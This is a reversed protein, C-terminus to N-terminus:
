SEPELMASVPVYEYGHADLFELVQPLAEYSAPNVDHMAIIAGPCINQTIRDYILDATAGDTWDSSDITWGVVHYGEQASVRILQENIAGFPARFYPKTTASSVAAKVAKETLRLEAGMGLESMGQMNEHTFSHNALEHGSALIDEIVEPHRQVAEGLMFYTARIGRAALNEMIETNRPVFGIDFTLSVRKTRNDHSIYYGSVGFPIEEISNVVPAPTTWQSPPISGKPLWIVTGAGGTNDPNLAVLAAESVGAAAAIDSLTDGPWLCYSELIDEDPVVPVAAAISSTVPVSASLVVPEISSAEAVTEATRLASLGSVLLWVGLVLM